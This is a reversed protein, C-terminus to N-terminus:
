EFLKNQLNSIEEKQKKTEEVDIEFLGKSRCKLVDGEKVNKPLNLISINHSKGNYDICIAITGELRDVSIRKLLNEKKRRKFM